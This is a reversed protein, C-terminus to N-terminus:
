SNQTVNQHAKKRLWLYYLTVWKRGAVLLQQLVIEISKPLFYWPSATLLESPPELLSTWHIAPFLPLINVIYYAVGIAGLFVTVFLSM